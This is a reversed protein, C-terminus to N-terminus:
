IISEISPFRKARRTSNEREVVSGCSTLIMFDSLIKVVMTALQTLTVISYLAATKVRSAYQIAFTEAGTRRFTMALVASPCRRMSKIFLRRLEESAM